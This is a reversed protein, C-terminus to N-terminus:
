KKRGRKPAPRTLEQAKKDLVWQEFYKHSETIMRPHKIYDECVMAHLHPSVFVMAKCTECKYPGTAKQKRENAVM